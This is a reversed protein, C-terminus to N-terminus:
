HQHEAQDVAEDEEGKKHLAQDPVDFWDTSRILNTKIVTIENTGTTYILKRGYSGGFDLDDARMGKSKLVVRVVEVNEAAMSVQDKEAWAPCGGGYVGVVVRHLDSQYELMNRLMGGMALLGFAPTLPDGPEPKPRLFNCIAAVKSVPDYMTVVVGAGVVTKIRVNDEAIIINGPELWIEQEPEPRETRAMRFDIGPPDDRRSKSM